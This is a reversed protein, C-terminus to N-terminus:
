IGLNENIESEYANVRESIIEDLFVPRNLLSSEFAAYCLAVARRGIDGDVEPQTQNIICEGFEYLEIALLKRYAQQFSL